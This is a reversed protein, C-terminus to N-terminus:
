EESQQACTLQWGVQEGLVGHGKIGAGAHGGPVVITIPVDVSQQGVKRQSGTVFHSGLVATAQEVAMGIQVPFTGGTTAPWVLSQQGM